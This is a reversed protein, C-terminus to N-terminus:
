RTMMMMIKYWSLETNYGLAAVSSIYVNVSVPMLSLQVQEGHSYNILDEDVELAGLDWHLHSHKLWYTHTM